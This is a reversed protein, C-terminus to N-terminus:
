KPLVPNGITANLRKIETEISKFYADMGAKARAADISTYVEGLLQAKRAKVNIFEQEYQEKTLQVYPGYMKEYYAWYDGNLGTTTTEGFATIAGNPHRGNIMDRRIKTTPKPAGTRIEQARSAIWDLNMGGPCATAYSQGHITYVERHGLVTWGAPDGERHPWWGGQESWYAVFQALSEHSDASITWGGTSENACEVTRGWSDWYSSSLSWARLHDAVIRVIRKDKIVAHASVQKTGYVMVEIMWNADTTAGHHLVAGGPSRTLASQNPTSRYETYPAPLSM